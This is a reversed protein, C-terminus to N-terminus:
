RRGLPIGVVSLPLMHGCHQMTLMRSVILQCHSMITLVTTRCEPLLVNQCPAPWAILIRDTRGDTKWVRAKHCFPLFIQGSKYVMRFFM